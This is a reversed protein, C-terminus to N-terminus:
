QQGEKEGNYLIDGYVAVLHRTAMIMGAMHNYEFDLEVYEPTGEELADMEKKIQEFDQELSILHIRTYELFADTM